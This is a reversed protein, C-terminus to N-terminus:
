ELGCAHIRVFYVKEGLIITSLTKNAYLYFFTLYASHLLSDMNLVFAIFAIQSPFLPMEICTM